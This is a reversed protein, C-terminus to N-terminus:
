GFEGPPDQDVWDSDIPPMTSNSASPPISINPKTTPPAPPTEAPPVVASPTHTPASTNVITGRVWVQLSSGPVKVASGNCSVVAGTSTKRITIALSSRSPIAGAAIRGAYADDEDVTFTGITRLPKFSVTLIGSAPSCSVATLGNGQLLPDAAIVWRRAAADYRVVGYRDDITAAASPGIPSGPQERVAALASPTAALGAVALATLLVTRGRRM